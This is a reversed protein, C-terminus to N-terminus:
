VPSVLTQSTIRRHNVARRPNYNEKIPPRIERTATRSNEQVFGKTSARDRQIVRIAFISRMVLQLHSILTIYHLTIYHLGYTLHINPMCILKKSKQLSKNVFTCFRNLPDIFCDRDNGIVKLREDIM